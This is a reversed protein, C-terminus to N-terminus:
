VSCCSSAHTRPPNEQNAVGLNETAGLDGHESEGPREGRCVDLCDDANRWGALPMAHVQVPEASGPDRHQHSVTREVNAWAPHETRRDSTPCSSMGPGDEVGCPRVRDEYVQWRDLSSGGDHIGDTLDGPQPHGDGGVHMETVARRHDAGAPECPQAVTEYSAM